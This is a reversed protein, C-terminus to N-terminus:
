TSEGFKMPPSVSTTMWCDYFNGQINVKEIIWEFGLKSGKIDTIEIFFLAINESSMVLSINHSQHNIMSIYSQSYMMKTFKALPGTYKKNNPHAFEFTQEIGFDKYPIDNNNLASLQIAIVQQPKLLPSPKLLDAYSIKSISLIFIFILIFRNM